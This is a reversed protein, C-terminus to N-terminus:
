NKLLKDQWDQEAPEQSIDWASAMIKNIILRDSVVCGTPETLVTSGAPITCEVIAGCRSLIKPREPTTCTHFGPGYAVLEGNQVADVWGSWGCRNSYLSALYDGDVKDYCSTQDSTDLETEYLQGFEYTFPYYFSHVRSRCDPVKVMKYVTMDEELVVPQQTNPVILCM